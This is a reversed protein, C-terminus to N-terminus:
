NDGLSSIRFSDIISLIQQLCEALDDQPQERKDSEVLLLLKYTGEVTDGSVEITATGVTKRISYV